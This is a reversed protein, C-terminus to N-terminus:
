IQHPNLQGTTQVADWLPVAFFSSLCQADRRLRGLDAHDILPLCDGRHNAWNLEDSLSFMRRRVGLPAFAGQTTVREPLLQIAHIAAIRGGIVTESLAPPSPPRGQPRSKWAM